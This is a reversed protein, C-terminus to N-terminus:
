HFVVCWLARHLSADVQVNVSAGEVSTFGRSLPPKGPAVCLQWMDGSVSNADANEVELISPM